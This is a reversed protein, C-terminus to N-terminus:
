VLLLSDFDIKNFVNLKTIRTANVIKINNKDCYERASEYAYLNVQLNPLTVKEVKGEYFYDTINDNRVLGEERTQNVSYNYDVGLLCIEKFGMYAALQILFYTITGGEYMQINIKNSFKPRKRLFVFPIRPFFFISGTIKIINIFDLPFFYSKAGVSNIESKIQHFMTLDCIGYYTPRWDTQNYIKFIRNSAFTYENQLRDLDESALSPGNGIIFCREGNHIDKFEKLLDLKSKNNKRSIYFLLIIKLEWVFRYIDKTYPSLRLKNKLKKFM